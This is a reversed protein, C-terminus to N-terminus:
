CRNKEWAEDLAREAQAVRLREEQVADLCPPAHYHRVMKAESDFNRLCRPCTWELPTLYQATLRTLAADLEAKM